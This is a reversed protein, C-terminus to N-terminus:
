SRAAAAAHAPAPATERPRPRRARAAYAEFASAAPDHRAALDVDRPAGGVAAAALRAPWPLAEEAAPVPQAHQAHQAHQAAAHLYHAHQLRALHEQAAAAAGGYHGQAPAYHGQPLYHGPPPYYAHLAPPYPAHLAPPAGAARAERAGARRANLRRLQERCNRRAGAFEALPQFRGCQQCFRQAVGDVLIAESKMHARCIRYRRFYRTHEVQASACGAILCRLPLNRKQQFHDGDLLLVPVNAPTAPPAEDEGGADAAVAALAAALALAADPEAAAEPAAAAAAAAAPAPAAAAATAAPAGPNPAGDAGPGAAGETPEEKTSPM